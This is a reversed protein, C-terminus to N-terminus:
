NQSEHDLTRHSCSNMWRAVRMLKLQSKHFSQALISVNPKQKRLLM